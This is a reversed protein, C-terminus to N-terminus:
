CSATSTSDREANLLLAPSIRLVPLCEPTAPPEFSDGSLAPLQLHEKNGKLAKVQESVEEVKRETSEILAKRTAMRASQLRTFKGGAEGIESLYKRQIEPSSLIKEEEGNMNGEIEGSKKMFFQEREQAKRLQQEIRLAALNTLVSPPDPRDEPCEISTNLSHHARSRISPRKPESRFAPKKLISKGAFPSIRTSQIAESLPIEPKRLVIEFHLAQRIVQEIMMEKLDLQCSVLDMAEIDSTSTYQDFLQVLLNDQQTVSGDFHKVATEFAQIHRDCDILLERSLKDAIEPLQKTAMEIALAVYEAVLPKLAQLKEIGERLKGQYTKVLDRKLKAGALVENERAKFTRLHAEYVKAEESELTCPKHSLSPEKTLHRGVCKECLLAKRCFCVLRATDGCLECRDM